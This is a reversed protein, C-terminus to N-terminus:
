DTLTPPEITIPENHQSFQYTFTFSGASIPIESDGSDEELEIGIVMQHVLYDSKGIWLEATMPATEDPILEQATDIMKEPNVIGQIHFCSIGNIDEDELMGTGEFAKMYEVSGLAFEELGAYDEYEAVEEDRMWEGTEPDRAYIDDGIAIVEIAPSVEGNMEMALTMHVKDPSVYDGEIEVSIMCSALMGIAAVLLVSATIIYCRKIV